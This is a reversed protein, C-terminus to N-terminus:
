RVGVRFELHGLQLTCGNVLETPGDIPVDNVLTGNSAKVNKILVRGHQVYVECHERSVARDYDLVIRNQSARGITIKEQLSMEFYKDPHGLDALSLVRVSHGLMVTGGDDEGEKGNMIYTPDEDVSVHNGNQGTQVSGTDASKKRKRIILIIVSGVMLLLVIAAVINFPFKQDSEEPTVITMNDTNKEAPSLTATAPSPTRVTSGFPMKTQAEAVVDSDLMVRVGKISGDRLPEPVVLRIQKPISETALKSAVGAASPLDTLSWYEAGTKRSLAYMEQLASDNGPLKCGFTYIPISETNLRETLEERLIGAPNKDAGDSIVIIRVYDSSQRNAEHDLVENLADVLFSDQSVSRISDSAALLASNDESEQLVIELHDSFTCLTMRENTLRREILEGLLEKARNQDATTLSMSNDMLLWTVVPFDSDRSVFAETKETGIQAEINACAGSYSIYLMVSDHETKQELVLVSELGYVPAAAVLALFFSALTLLAQRLNIKVIERM